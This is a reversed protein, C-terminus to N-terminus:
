AQGMEKKVQMYATLVANMRTQYGPGQAKFFDLVAPDVRLSILKKRTTERLSAEVWAVTSLAEVELEEVQRDPTLVLPAALARKEAISLRKPVEDVM